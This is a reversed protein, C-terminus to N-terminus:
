STVSGEEGHRGEECLNGEGARRYWEQPTVLAINLADIKGQLEIFHTFATPVVPQFAILKTKEKKVSSSDVKGLAEEAKQIKSTLDAQQDKLKQLEAKQKAVPDSTQGCSMFFITGTIMASLFIKNM